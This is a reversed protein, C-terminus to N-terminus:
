GSFTPQHGSSFAFVFFAVSLTFPLFPDMRFEPPIALCVEAM